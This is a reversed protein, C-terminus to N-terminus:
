LKAGYFEVLKALAADVYEDVWYTEIHRADEIIFLEKGRHRQGLCGPESCALESGWTVTVILSSRRLSLAPGEVCIASEARRLGITVAPMDAGLDAM